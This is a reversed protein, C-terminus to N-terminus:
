TMTLTEGGKSVWGILAIRTYWLANGGEAHLFRRYQRGKKPIAGDGRLSPSDSNIAVAVYM